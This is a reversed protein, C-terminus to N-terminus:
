AILQGISDQIPDLKLVGVHKSDRIAAEATMVLLQNLTQTHSVYVSLLSNTVSFM